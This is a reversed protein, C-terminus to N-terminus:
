SFKEEVSKLAGISVLVHDFGILTAPSLSKVNSILVNPINRSALELDASEVDQVMLVKGLGMGKLKEILIKTKPAEISFDEVVRLRDQRVLESFISRFARIYMKRNVKQSYDRPVAAFTVGGSRWLPSRITGARARGTGKQRFPKAGGGSVQSRTKQAVTGSRGTALYATVVQHVLPENFGSDFVIDSVTLTDNKADGGFSHITLEM